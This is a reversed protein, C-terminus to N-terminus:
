RHCRHRRTRAHAGHGGRWNRKNPRRSGARPRPAGPRVRSRVCLVASSGCARRAQRPAPQLGRVARCPGPAAGCGGEWGRPGAPNGAAYRSIKQAFARREAMAAAARPLARPQAAEEEREREHERGGAREGTPEGSGVALSPRGGCGPVLTGYHASSARVLFREGGGGEGGGGGRAGIGAPPRAPLGNHSAPASPVRPTSVPGAGERGQRRASVVPFVWSPGYGSFTRGAPREGFPLNPFPHFPGQPRPHSLETRAAGVGPLKPCREQM